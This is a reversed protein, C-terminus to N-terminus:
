AAAAAKRYQKLAVGYRTELYMHREIEAVSFVFGDNAPNYPKRESAALHKQAEKHVELLSAAIRMQEEEHQKRVAQMEILEKRVNSIQRQLRAAYLGMNALAKSKKETIAAIVFTPQGREDSQIKEAAEQYSLATIQDEQAHARHAKWIADALMQVYHKETPGKPNWENMLDECHRNYSKLDEHPMVVVQGTLGHRLASLAANKKGEETKPGTSKQANLRNIEARTLDLAM